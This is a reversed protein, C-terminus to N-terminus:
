RLGQPQRRSAEFARACAISHRFETSVEMTKQDPLNTTDSTTTLTEQEADSVVAHNGLTGWELHPTVATPLLVSCSSRFSSPLPSHHAVDGIFWVRFYLGCDRIEFLLNLNVSRTNVM